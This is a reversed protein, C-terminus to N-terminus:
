RWATIPSTGWVLVVDGPQVHEPGLSRGAPVIGVGSTTIYLRNAAGRGVVKTDGTVIRVGATAAAEAM